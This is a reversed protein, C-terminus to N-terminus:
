FNNPQDLRPKLAQKTILRVYHGEVRLFSAAPCNKDLVPSDYPFLAHRPFPGQAGAGALARLQFPHPMLDCGMENNGFPPM